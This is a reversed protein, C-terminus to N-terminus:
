AGIRARFRTTSRRLLSVTQEQGTIIRIWRELKAGQLLACLETLVDKKSIWVSKQLMTFQCERLIYRLINRVRRESEPVDFIVICIEGGARANPACRIKDRLAQQWGKATLRVMLKEGIRKTEICKYRELARLWEREEYARKSEKRDEYEEWGMSYHGRKM